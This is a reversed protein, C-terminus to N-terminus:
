YLCIDKPVGDVRAKKCTVIDGFLKSAIDNAKVKNSQALNWSDIAPKIFTNRIINEM